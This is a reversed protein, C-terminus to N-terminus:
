KIKWKKSLLKFGLNFVIVEIGWMTLFSYWFNIPLQLSIAIFLLKFFLMQFLHYADTVFVFITASGSFRESYKIGFIRYYLNPFRPMLMNGYEDIAYKREWGEIGWFSSDTQWPIKGQISMQSIVYCILSLTFLIISLTM